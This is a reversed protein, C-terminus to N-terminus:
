QKIILVPMEARRVVRESVSGWVAEQSPSRGRSGIAICSVELEGALRIISQEPVGLEIRLDVEVGNQRLREAMDELRERDTADFEALRNMLHPELRTADQVHLLSVHTMGKDALSIFDDFASLSFDSFDTPFLMHELLQRKLGGIMEQDEAPPHLVLMNTPGYRIIDLSVSGLFFEQWPIGVFANMIITDASRDKAVQLIQQAPIGIRVAAALPVEAREQAEAVEQNLQKEARRVLRRDRQPWPLVSEVCHVLTVQEVPMNHILDLLLDVNLEARSTAILVHELM